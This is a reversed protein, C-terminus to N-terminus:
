CEVKRMTRKDVCDKCPGKTLVGNCNSLDGCYDANLTIETPHWERATHTECHAAVRADTDNVTHFSEGNCSHRANSGTEYSEKCLYATDPKPALTSGAFVPTCIVVAFLVSLKRM